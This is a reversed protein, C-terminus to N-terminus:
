KNTIFYTTMELLCVLTKNNEKIKEAKAIKSLTRRNREAHLERKQREYLLQTHLLVLEGRAISLEDTPVSM